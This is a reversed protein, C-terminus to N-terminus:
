SRPSREEAASRGPGDEQGLLVANQGPISTKARTKLVSSRFTTTLRLRPVARRESGSANEGLQLPRRGNQELAFPRGEVDDLPEGSDGRRRPGIDVRDGSRSGSDEVGALRGGAEAVQFFVGDAHAASSVVAAVKRGHDEDLVIM